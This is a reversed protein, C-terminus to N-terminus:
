EVKTDRFFTLYNNIQKEYQEEYKTKWYILKKITSLLSSYITKVKIEHKILSM